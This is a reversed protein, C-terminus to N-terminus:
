SEAKCSIIIHDFEMALKKTLSLVARHMLARVRTQTESSAHHTMRVCARRLRCHSKEDAKKYLCVNLREGLLM